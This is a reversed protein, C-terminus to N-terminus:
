FDREEGQKIYLVKSVLIGANGAIFRGPEIEIECGLHGVKERILAGYEAPSPPRVNSNEYPIGLGGGLDLRTIEHGDSRLVETLEAVKEFAHGFPELQTLQSGIHVDIGIIKIGPLAAAMAYVERARSIPIGFKDEKKGTSIKAHTKADVDPNVRMTIPAIVDLATAVTSLMKMEPESEVNFQRIGGTLAMEMEARTKGVGSFVIREGPVGAARARKYEGGSVVDMGAGVDSLLKLIAQNSAAKMAYCVLHEMGELADDLLKFHRLLTASSYLYFPTGVYAAIKSVPVTEACLEGIRYTFHDM